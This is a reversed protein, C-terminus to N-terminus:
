HTFVTTASIGNPAAVLALNTTDEAVWPSVSVDIVMEEGPNLIGPELVDTITTTWKLEYPYWEVHPGGDATYQLIVDWRDFDALKIDGDNKLTIWVTSGAISTEAGIPSLDTKAREELREEMERWSELIADQASLISQSITLLGFLILTIIILGAIVIEM